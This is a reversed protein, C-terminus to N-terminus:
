SSGARTYLIVLRGRWASCLRPRWGTSSGVDCLQTVQQQNPMCRVQGFSGGSYPILMGEPTRALLVKFLYTPLPLSHAMVQVLQGNHWWLTCFSGVKSWELKDSAIRCALCYRVQGFSGGSYPNLMGEPTRMLLVKVVDTQLPLSHAMGQPLQADHWGMTCFLGAAHM